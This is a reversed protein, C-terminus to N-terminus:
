EKDLDRLEHEILATVVAQPSIEKELSFILFEAIQIEKEIWFKNNNLEKIRNRLEEIEKEEQIKATRMRTIDVIEGKM